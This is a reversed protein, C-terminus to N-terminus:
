DRRGLAIIETVHVSCAVGTSVAVQEYGVAEGDERVDMSSVGGDAGLRRGTTSTVDRRSSYRVEAVGNNIIEWALRDPNNAFLPTITGAVGVNVDTEQLRTPYGWAGESIQLAAGGRLFRKVREGLPM